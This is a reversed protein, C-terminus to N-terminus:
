ARRWLGKECVALGREALRKLHKKATAREAWRYFDLPERPKRYVLWLDAIDDVSRPESLFDLIKRERSLPVEIYADWLAPPAETLVGGDHAPIWRRAPVAQLARVSAITRTLSSAPDAYWPGFPTLDYDSLFLVSPEPFFFAVHGPTHGPVHLVRASLGPFLGIEENPAFFSLESEPRPRFHFGSVIYEAWRERLSRNEPEDMGYWDMLVELDALPPADAPHIRVIADPFLDLHAFHDEHWHSLWVERVGEEDRLRTLRERDSAPDILVGAGEVYVSHCHPYRGRNPGPLFRIPGVNCEVAAKPTAAM